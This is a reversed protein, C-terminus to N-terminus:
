YPRGRRVWEDPDHAQLFKAVAAATDWRDGDKVRIRNAPPNSDVDYPAADGVVEGWDGIEADEGPHTLSRFTRGDETSVVALGYTAAVVAGLAQDWASGDPVVVAQAYTRMDDEEDTVLSSSLQEGIIPYVKKGPCSKASYDAHGSLTYDATLAGVQIGEAAIRRATDWAADSVEHDDGNIAFCISVSKSNRGVTHAGTRFWGRGEYARGSQFVVFQYGTGGGRSANGGYFERVHFGEVGRMTQAEFDSSRFASVDPIYSHHCILESVRGMEYGGRGVSGWQHRPTYASM